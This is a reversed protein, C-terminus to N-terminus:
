NFTDSTQGFSDLKPFYTLEVKSKLSILKLDHSLLYTIKAYDRAEHSDLTHRINKQKATLM